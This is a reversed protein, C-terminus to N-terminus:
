RRRSPPVRRILRARGQALTKLADRAMAFAEAISEAETVLSSDLPSTVVFGGEDAAELELVLQGDSITYRKAM